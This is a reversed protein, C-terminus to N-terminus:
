LMWMLINNILSNERDMQLMIDDFCNRHENACEQSM